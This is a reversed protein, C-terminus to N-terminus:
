LIKKKENDFRIKMTGFVKRIVTRIIIVNMGEQFHMECVVGLTQKNNLLIFEEGGAISMIQDAKEMILAEVLEYDCFREYDDYMRKCAHYTLAIKFHIDMPELGEAIEEETLKEEVFLDYVEEFDENLDYGKFPKKLNVAM